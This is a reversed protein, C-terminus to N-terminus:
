EELSQLAHRTVQGRWYTFLGEPLEWAVEGRTPVVLGSMEKWDDFRGVWPTDIFAGNVERPRAEARVQVVRGASDVDYDLGTWQDGVKCLIRLRGDREEYRLAPNGLYAAPAWPLESLYRLAQGRDVEDGRQEFLKLWGWLRGSLSGSGNAYSDEVVLSVFPMMPFRAQWRFAVTETATWQHATFKMAKGGPERWM